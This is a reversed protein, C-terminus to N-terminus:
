WTAFLLFLMEALIQKMNYGKLVLLEISKIGTMVLSYQM